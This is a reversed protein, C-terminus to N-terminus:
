IHILSLGNFAGSISGFNSILAAEGNIQVATNDADPASISGQPLVILRANDGEVAVAPAGSPAVIDQILITSDGNGLVFTEDLSGSPQNFFLSRFLSAM